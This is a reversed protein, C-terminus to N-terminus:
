TPPKLEKSQFRGPTGDKVDKDPTPDWQGM